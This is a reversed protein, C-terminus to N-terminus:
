PLVVKLISDALGDDHLQQQYCDEHREYGPLRADENIRDKDYTSPSQKQKQQDNVRLCRVVYIYVDYRV